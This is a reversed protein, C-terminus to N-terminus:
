SGPLSNSTGTTSLGCFDPRCTHRSAHFHKVRDIFTRLEPTEVSLLSPIDNVNAVVVATTTAKTDLSTGMESPAMGDSSSKGSKFLDPNWEKM